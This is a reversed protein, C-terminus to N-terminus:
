AEGQALLIHAAPPDRGAATQRQDHIGIQGRNADIAQNVISVELAAIGDHQHNTAICRICRRANAPNFNIDVVAPPLRGGAIFRPGIRQGHGFACVSDLGAGGIVGVILTGDARGNGQDGVGSRRVQCEVGQAACGFRRLLDVSSLPAHGQTARNAIWHAGSACAATQRCVGDLHQEFTLEVLAQGVGPLRGRDVAVGPREVIM